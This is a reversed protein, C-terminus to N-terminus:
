EYVSAAVIMDQYVALLHYGEDGAWYCAAGAQLQGPDGYRSSMSEKLMRFLGTSGQDEAGPDTYYHALAARGGADEQIELESWLTLCGWVTRSHYRQIVSTGVRYPEGDAEFGSAEMAASAQEFAMGSRLDPGRYVSSSRFWYFGAFAAALALFAAILVLAPRAPKERRGDWGSGRRAGDAGDKVASGAGARRPRRLDCGCFLCFRGRGALEHGCEPCYKVAM